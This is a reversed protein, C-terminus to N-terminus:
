KNKIVASRRSRPIDYIRERGATDDGIKEKERKREGGEVAPKSAEQKGVPLDFSGAM